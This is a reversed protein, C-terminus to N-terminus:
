KNSIHVRLERSSSELRHITGNDAEDSFKREMRKLQQVMGKTIKATSRRDLRKKEMTEIDKRPIQKNAELLHSTWLAGEGSFTRENLFSKVGTGKLANIDQHVPVLNEPDNTCEKVIPVANNIENEDYGRDKYMKYVLNFLHAPVQCEM